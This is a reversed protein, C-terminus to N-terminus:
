RGLVLEHQILESKKVQADASAAGAREANGTSRWLAALTLDVLLFPYRKMIWSEPVPETSIDPDVLYQIYFKNMSGATDQLRIQVTDGLLIVGRPRWMGLTDMSADPFDTLSLETKATGSIEDYVQVSVLDRFRPITDIDLDYSNAPGGSVLTPTILSTCDRSFRDFRHAALIAEKLKLTVLTLKDPRKFSDQVAALLEAFNM